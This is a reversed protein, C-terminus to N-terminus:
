LSTFHRTFRVQTAPLPMGDDGFTALLLTAYVRTSTPYPVLLRHELAAAASSDDLSAYTSWVCGHLDRLAAQSVATLTSRGCRFPASRRSRM